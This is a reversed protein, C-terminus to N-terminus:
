LNGLAACMLVVVSFGLVGLLWWVWGATPSRIEPTLARTEAHNDSFVVDAGKGYLVMLGIVGFVTGVPMAVLNLISLALGWGRASRNIHNRLKSGAILQVLGIPLACLAMFAFLEPEGYARDLESVCGAMFGMGTLLSVVGRAVFYTGLARIHGEVRLFDLRIQHHDLVHVPPDPPRPDPVVPEPDPVVPKPDPVKPKPKPKPKIAQHPGSELLRRLAPVDTPRDDRDPHICAQIARVVHPPIDAFFETPSPLTEKSKKVMVEFESTTPDWPLRGALLQYLTMGLAYMDARADVAKAHTYQEPAMYDVTGMGSRTATIQSDRRRAIGFDLVRIRGDPCRMVNSPKLDRHIVGHLHAYELADLLQDFIPRAEVWPIPGQCGHLWDDLTQGPVYEMVLGLDDGSEVLGHSRVISPHRLSLGIEVERHFRGRVKDNRAYHAHILKIAVDGGQGEVVRPNDHRARWVEGMGGEGLREILSYGGIRDGARM